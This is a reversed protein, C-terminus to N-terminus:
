CIGLRANVVVAVTSVQVLEDAELKAIHFLSELLCVQHALIEEEVTPTCVEWHLLVCGQSTVGCIVLQREPTGRLGRVIHLTCQGLYQLHRGRADPDDRTGVSATEPPLTIGEAMLNHDGFEGHHRSPGDLDCQGPFLDEVTMPTAVGREHPGLGTDGLVSVDGRHMEPGREVAAAVTGVTNGARIVSACQM